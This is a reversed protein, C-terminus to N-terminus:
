IIVVLVQKDKTKKNRETYRKLHCNGLISSFIKVHIGKSDMYHWYIISLGPITLHCKEDILLLLTRSQSNWIISWTAKIIWRNKRMIKTTYIWKTWNRKQSSKHPRIKCKLIKCKKMVSAPNMLNYIYIYIQYQIQFISINSKSIFRQKLPLLKEM